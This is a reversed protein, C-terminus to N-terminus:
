LLSRTASQHDPVDDPALMQVFGHNLAVQRREAHVVECKIAEAGLEVVIVQLM